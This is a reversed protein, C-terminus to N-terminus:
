AQIPCCFFSWNRHVRPQPSHAHTDLPSDCRTTSSVRVAGRLVSGRSITSAVQHFCGVILGPHHRPELCVSRTARGAIWGHDLIAKIERVAAPPRPPEFLDDPRRHTVLFIASSADRPLLYPATTAVNSRFQGCCRPAAVLCLTDSGAAVRWTFNPRAGLVEIRRSGGTCRASGFSSRGGGKRGTGVRLWCKVPPPFYLSWPDRFTM